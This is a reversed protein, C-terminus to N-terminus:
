MSFSDLDFAFRDRFFCKDIVILSKCVRVCAHTAPHTPSAYSMRPRHTVQNLQMTGQGIVGDFQKRLRKGQANGRFRTVCVFFNGGVSKTM